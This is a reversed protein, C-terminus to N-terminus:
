QREIRAADRVRAWKEVERKIYAGFEAPTTGLPEAGDAALRAKMEASRLAFACFFRALAFSCSALNLRRVLSSSARCVRASFSAM